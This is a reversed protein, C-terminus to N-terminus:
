TTPKQTTHTLHSQILPGRPGTGQTNTHPSTLTSTCTSQEWVTRTPSRQLLGIPPWALAGLASMEQLRALLMLIDILTPITDLPQSM